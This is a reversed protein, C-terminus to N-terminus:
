NEGHKRRSAFYLGAAAIMIVCGGITFITTGIGGTGPLKALKTDTMSSTGTVPTDLNSDVNGWTINSNIDNISYGDPAEIEDFEYNVNKELGNVVIQSDNNTELKSAQSADETWGTLTYPNTGEVIAYYTKNDEKKILNFVAGSLKISEEEADKKTLTVIGSILKDEDSGYKDKGETTGDGAIVTNGIKIDKVIASYTITIPLNAYRNANGEEKTGLISTLDLTFTEGTKEGTDSDTVDAPQVPFDHEYSYDPKSGIKVNVNFEASGEPVNYEAGSIQDTIKYYRNNATVPVYPVTGTVTYTVEKGIEVVKDADNNTKTITTPAKKANVIIAGLIGSPKGSEYNFGVYAAMPSYSYGTEVGKIVWVGAANVSIPSLDKCDEDKITAYIANLASAYKADFDSIEQGETAKPNQAYIMGKIISQTDQTKFADTFYSAYGDVFDWGTDKTASPEIVRVAAFKGSGANTITITATTGAAFTTLSLGMVMVLTLLLAMVKRLKRM